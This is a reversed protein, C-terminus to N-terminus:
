DKFNYITENGKKVGIIKRGCGVCYHLNEPNEVMFVTNCKPCQEFPMWWEDCNLSEEIVIENEKM